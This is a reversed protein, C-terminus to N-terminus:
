FYIFHLVTRTAINKKNDLINYTWCVGADCWRNQHERAKMMIHVKNVLMVDDDTRKELDNIFQEM